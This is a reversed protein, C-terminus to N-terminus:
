AAEEWRAGLQRYEIACGMCVATKIGETMGDSIGLDTYVVVARAKPLWAQGAKIGLAREEPVADRLVGDATYIRHAAFPADGHVMLCDRMCASLYREYRAADPSNDAKYPSEVIVRRM